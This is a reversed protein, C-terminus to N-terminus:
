KMQAKAEIGYGLYFLTDTVEISLLNYEDIEKLVVALVWDIKVTLPVAGVRIHITGMGMYIPFFLWKKSEM